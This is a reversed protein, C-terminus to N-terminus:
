DWGFESYCQGALACGLASRVYQVTNVPLDDTKYWGMDDCKGPEKNAPEGQWHRAEFFLSLREEADFRHLTHVLDLDDPVIILGAEERAERAMAARFTENGDVHGAVLSYYGDMYGTQFRRLMLLDTGKRLILHVEPIIKFRMANGWPRACRQWMDRCCTRM